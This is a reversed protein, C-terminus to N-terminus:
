LVFCFFFLQAFIVIAICFCWVQYFDLEARVPASHAVSADFITPYRIRAYASLVGCYSGGMIIVRGATPYAKKMASMFDAADALAQQVTLFRLGATDTTPFPRSKGYFSNITKSNM